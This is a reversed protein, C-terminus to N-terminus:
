WSLASFFTSPTVTILDGSQCLPRNHEKHTRNLAGTVFSQVRGQWGEGIDVGGGGGGGGGGGVGGGGGRAEGEVGGGVERKM